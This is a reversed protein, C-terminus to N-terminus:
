VVIDCCRLSHWLCRVLKHIIAHFTVADQTVFLKSAHVVGGPNSQCYDLHVRKNALSSVSFYFFFNFGFVVSSCVLHYSVIFFIFTAWVRNGLM